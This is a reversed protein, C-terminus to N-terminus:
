KENEKTKQPFFYICVFYTINLGHNCEYTPGKYVNSTPKLCMCRLQVVYNHQEYTINAQIPCPQHVRELESKVQRAKSEFCNRRGQELDM